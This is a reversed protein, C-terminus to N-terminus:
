RRQAEPSALLLLIGERISGARRASTATEAHALPGLLTEGLVAPEVSGSAAARGAVEGAWDLRRMLQEPAAWEGAQDSWGIPAPATWLPQNLRAMTGLLLNASEAGLGLARLVAVAYDQGDRIKRLPTRAEPEAIVAHAAAALDGGRDRLVAEIRAVAPPPPTDGVFHKALKVALARHTAPHNALFRLAQSGGEEGEPFDRGMLQM